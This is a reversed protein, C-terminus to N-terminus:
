HQLNKQKSLKEYSQDHNAIKHQLAISRNTGSKSGTDPATGYGKSAREEAKDEAGM